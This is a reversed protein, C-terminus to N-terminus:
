KFYLKYGMLAAQAKLMDRSVLLDEEDCCRWVSDRGQLDDTKGCKEFVREIDVSIEQNGVILNTGGFTKMLYEQWDREIRLQLSFPNM